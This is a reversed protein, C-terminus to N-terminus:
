WKLFSKKENLANIAFEPKNAIIGSVGLGALQQIQKPSMKDKEHVTCAIVGINKKGAKKIIRKYLMSGAIITQYYSVLYDADAEEVARLPDIPLAVFLVGTKVGPCMKKFIKTLLHGFSIVTTSSEIKNRKIIKAVKRLSSFTKLEIILKAKGNILNVVEQLTPVQEGDGADLLKIEKLTLEDVLGKGNTTRNVDDDHMVIPVKDKTLRVDIEVAEAGSELAKKFAKLTNEPEAEGCLGRHGIVMPRKM